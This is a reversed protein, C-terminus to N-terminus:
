VEAAEFVDVPEQDARLPAAAQPRDVGAQEFSVGSYVFEAGEQNQSRELRGGQIRSEGENPATQRFPIPRLQENPVHQAPPRYTRIAQALQEQLHPDM